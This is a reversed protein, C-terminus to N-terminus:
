YKLRRGLHVSLSVTHKWHPTAANQRTGELQLKCSARSLQKHCVVRCEITNRLRRHIFASMCFCRLIPRLVNSILMHDAFLRLSRQWESATHVHTRCVSQRRKTNLSCRLTHTHTHTHRYGCGSTSKFPALPTMGGLHWPHCRFLGEVAFLRWSGAGPGRQPGRFQQGGLESEPDTGPWVRRM